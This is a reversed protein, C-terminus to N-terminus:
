WWPSSMGQASTAAPRGHWPTAHSQSRHSSIQFRTNMCNSRLSFSAGSMGSGLGDMSVPAPRSRM